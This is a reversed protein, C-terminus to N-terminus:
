GHVSSGSLRDALSREKILAFLLGLSVVSLLAGLWRRVAQGISLPGGGISRAVLGVRAMGPTHGWFTLPLVHYVFSFCGVLLLLPLLSLRGPSVGLWSSGAVAAALVALHVALDLVAGAMRRGPTVATPKPEQNELEDNPEVDPEDAARRWDEPELPELPLEPQFQQLKARRPAQRVPDLPLDIPSGQAGPTSRKM